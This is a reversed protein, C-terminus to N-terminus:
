TSLHSLVVTKVKARTAMKGIIELTMHGQTAQQTIGEREAPTMAQWQGTDILRQMRDQFSSPKLSLCIPVKHLSPSQMAPTDGTFVIVRDPTEFRYSYSKHKGSAGSDPPAGSRLGACSFRANHDIRYLRPGTIPEV